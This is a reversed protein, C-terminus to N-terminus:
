SRVQKQGAALILLTTFHSIFFKIGPKQAETQIVCLTIAPLPMMFPLSLHLSLTFSLLSLLVSSYNLEVGLTKVSAQTQWAFLVVQREAPYPEELLCAAHATVAGRALAWRRPASHLFCPPLHPLRPSSHSSRLSFSPAQQGSLSPSSFQSLIATIIDRGRHKEYMCM